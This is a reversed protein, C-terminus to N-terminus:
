VLSLRRILMGLASTGRSPITTRDPRCTRYPVYLVTCLTRCGAFAPVCDFGFVSASCHKHLLVSLPYPTAAQDTNAQQNERDVKGPREEKAIM